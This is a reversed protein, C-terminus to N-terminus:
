LIDDPHYLSPPLVPSLATLAADPGMPRQVPCRIVPDQEASGTVSLLATVTGEETESLLLSGGHCAAAASVLSLGLGKGTRLDTQEERHRQFPREPLPAAPRNEVTFCLRDEGARSLTLRVRGDRADSAANVVLERLMDALLAEDVYLPIERDPLKWSLEIGASQLLERLEGCLVATM